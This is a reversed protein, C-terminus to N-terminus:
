SQSRLGGFRLRFHHSVIEMRCRIYFRHAAFRQVGSDLELTACRHHLAQEVLWEFLARGYGRSREPEASVLDDVYLVRGCALNEILRYGAVSRVLGGDSLYVLRYGQQEQLRVRPVFEGESLHPRLERMVSFCSRIQQDTLAPVIRPAAPEM